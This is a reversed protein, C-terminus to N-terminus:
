EFVRIQNNLYRLMMRTGVFLFVIICWFLIRMQIHNLSNHNKPCTYVPRFKTNVLCLNLKKNFDIHEIESTSENYRNRRISKWRYLGFGSFASKVRVWHEYSLMIRLTSIDPRIAGYDYYDGHQTLSMGFVADICENRNMMDFLEFTNPISEFDLDIMVFYDGNYKKKNALEFVKNRLSAIRQVRNKCNYSEGKKCLETSHRGDNLNYFEGIINSDKKTFKNLIDRTRDTSDNEVFFIKYNSFKKGLNQVFNLNRSLYEEGNQIIFGFAISKEYPSTNKEM